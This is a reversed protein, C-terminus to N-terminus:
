PRTFGAQRPKVWVDLVFVANEQRLYTRQGTRKDQIYSGEGMDPDDFVVRHGNKVMKSVSGLAKTVPCVQFIMQTEQGSEMVADIAREGLNPITSGDAGSYSAGYLSKQTDVATYQTCKGEPIVSDAAGSDVAVILIEWKPNDVQTSLPGLMEPQEEFLATVEGEEKM